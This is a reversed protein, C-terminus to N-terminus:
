EIVEFWGYGKRKKGGVGFKELGVKLLEKAIEVLDPKSEVPNVPTYSLCVRFSVGESVALFHIPTLNHWDGPLENKQYYPTYHPNMIDIVVHKEPNFDEPFADFFVINRDLGLIRDSDGQGSYGGTRM